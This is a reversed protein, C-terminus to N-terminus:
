ELKMYTFFRDPDRDKIDKNEVWKTEDKENIKFLPIDHKKTFGNKEYFKVAHTNDKLVRLFVHDVKLTRQIWFILTNLAHTMMGKYSDKIGRVVNDIECSRQEFNFTSCGLHGVPQNNTSYVVFLIRDERELLIKDLWYETRKNTVEFSNAFGEPNERRWNSFMSIYEPALVKYHYTVPQLYGILMNNHYIPISKIEDFTSKCKYSNLIELINQKYQSM